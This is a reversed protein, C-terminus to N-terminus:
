ITIHKRDLLVVTEIHYTQPFLDFPIVQELQYGSAILQRVDRALTSPDCSIYVIKSPAMRILAELARPAVGSRPPDIVALSAKEKLNPLIIEAKGEYLEVNDFEDLNVVYDQCSSPSIEVGICKKVRPALFASFLGVGCYVDLLVDEPQPGLLQLVCNVMAEAQPLNVQFFSAASVQFLRDLISMQISSDGALVVSDNKGEHVISIPIDLEVEPLDFDDGKIVMMVDDDLGARLEVREINELPEFELQPFLSCLSATPLHCERISVVRHSSSAQFGLKGLSDLHFQIANRYNWPDLSPHIAQVPPSNLGAIRQFQDVLIRTKWELQKEYPIHQYHCGGCDMFHPCRPTIRDPSPKIIEIIKARSFNKKEEVLEVRVTEGPLGFPVFVTCGDPLTGLCDGGYIM